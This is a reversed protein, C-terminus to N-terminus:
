PQSPQCVNIIHPVPVKKPDSIYTYRAVYLKMLSSPLIGKPLSGTIKQRIIRIIRNISQQYTFHPKGLAITDFSYGSLHGSRFQQDSRCPGAYRPSEKM